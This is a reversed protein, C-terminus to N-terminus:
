ALSRLLDALGGRARGDRRASTRARVDTPWVVHLGAGRLRVLLAHEEGFAVPPFGGVREFASGRVGLNAAYAHGHTRGAIRRAVLATYRALADPPLLHPDDLDVAGAVADAGAAAHRLHDVVWTPPVVTDADTSLLWTRESVAGLRTALHRFGLNRVDAVPRPLDNVLVADAGAARARHATTDTCRDAVVCTIAPCGSRTVARAVAALCAGIRDEEDRAPIVIGVRWTV